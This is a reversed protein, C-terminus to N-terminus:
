MKGKKGKKGKGKKGKAGEDKEEVDDVAKRAARRQIKAELAKRKIRKRITNYACLGVLAMVIAIVILLPSIYELQTPVVITLHCTTFRDMENM